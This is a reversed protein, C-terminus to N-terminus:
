EVISFEAVLYETTSDGLDNAPTLGFVLRYTGVPVCDGYFYFSKTGTHTNHPSVVRGESNFGIDGIDTRFALSYWEGDQLVEISVTSAGFIYETDTSNELSYAIQTDSGFYEKQGTTLSLGSTNSVSVTSPADATILVPTADVEDAASCGTLGTAFFLLFLATLLFHVCKSNQIVNAGPLMRM